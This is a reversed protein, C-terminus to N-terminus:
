WPRLSDHDKNRADGQAENPHRPDDQIMKPRRCRLLGPWRWWRLKVLMGTWGAEERRRRREAEWECAMPVQCFFSSSTTHTWTHMKELRSLSPSFRINGESNILKLKIDISIMNILGMMYYLYIYIVRFFVDSAKSGRKEWLETAGVITELSSVMELPCTPVMRFIVKLVIKWDGKSM